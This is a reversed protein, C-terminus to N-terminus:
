AQKESWPISSSISGTPIPQRRTGNFFQQINQLCGMILHRSPNAVGIDIPQSQQTPSINSNKQTLTGDYTTSFASLSWLSFHLQSISKNSNFFLQVELESTIISLKVSFLWRNAVVFRKKAQKIVVMRFSLRQRANSDRGTNLISNSYGRKYLYNKPPKQGLSHKKYYTM